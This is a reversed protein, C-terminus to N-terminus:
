NGTWGNGVFTMPRFPDSTQLVPPPLTSVRLAPTQVGSSAMNTADVKDSGSETPKKRSFQLAISYVLAIAASGLLPGISLAIGWGMLGIKAWPQRSFNPNHTPVFTLPANAGKFENGGSVKADIPKFVPYTHCSFNGGQDSNVVRGAINIWSTFRNVSPNPRRSFGLLLQGPKSFPPFRQFLREATCHTHSLPLRLSSYVLNAHLIHSELYFSKSFQCLIRFPCM